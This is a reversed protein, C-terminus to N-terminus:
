RREGVLILRPSRLEYREGALGGFAELPEIGADAFMRRLEAATHVWQHIPKVERREGRTFTYTIDLRGDVADYVTASDFQLDGLLLHRESQLTPLISEAAVGTELAFRGGKKLARAVAALFQRCGAHDIYGFSNGWCYAADFRAEWPLDRMEARVWEASPLKGRAEAIFGASIDVGTIQAGRAALEIAHRGNGCPVDLVASGPRISLREAQFAAEARTTELPVAARWMDLALGDFFTEYWNQNL